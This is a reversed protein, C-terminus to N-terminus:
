LGVETGVGHRRALAYAHRATCLDEVALGVSKFVTLEDPGTRGVARGTLVDGISARLEVKTEAAALVYDGAEAAVSPVSDAFVAADAMTATDLERSTAVAAGIANVHTGPRLWERRVVPDPSTTATVVVDASAVAVRPSAAPEVPMDLEARLRECVARTRAADRGLMRIRTFPRVRALARAHAVGQVGTGFIVLETADDRALLETAVATVAPSRLETVTSANLLALPEGTHGSFLLVAGQHSDLGRATNGPFLCVAKLGYAPEPASAYAPMLGLLGAAGPPALVPREAPQQVDGDAFAALAARMAARCEGPTLLRRLDTDSLVLM